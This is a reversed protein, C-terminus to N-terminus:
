TVELAGGNLDVKPGTLKVSAGTGNDIEIGTASVKIKQGGTLEVIFGGAGPTDDLTLTVADTKFVKKDAVAPVAPPEGLAWFCGTWVPYDPDGHEFEIWVSANAPPILFLGVGKGAYPLAPLAWGSDDSGFVDPVRAKIRGLMQPDQNDTVTGRYKGHFSRSGSNNNM